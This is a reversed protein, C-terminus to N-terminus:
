FQAYSDAPFGIKELNPLCAFNIMPPPGCMGMYTDDGPAPMAKKIMEEDIFGTSYDWKEGNETRDVTYWLHFNEHDKALQDLEERLLIDSPTVNAFLLSVETKDTKDKLIAKIVQYAPTLGTGGCIFGLKTKTMEKGHVVINGNGKYEFHGLPGKVGITDGLKLSDLHQSLIGGEPFKPHENAFYVKVVLDFYGVEDNSSTPTYARMTLKGNVMGSVLMHYGVPLGLVHDKSQLAFRFRRTNRNIVDKQVLAFDIRKKPNLAVLETAEVVEKKETAEDVNDEGEDLEGIYYDALMEKAKTSHIADFEDTADAGSNMTISASGGPHDKLFPTCDYVKDHVVIWASDDNDHKRIESWKFYKKSSDKVKTESKKEEKKEVVAPPADVPDMWGGKTPGAVTPHEFRLSFGNETTEPHIKVRFHPNNGMGMLNWTLTAPQANNAEDWARCCLEGYGMGCELFKSTNVKLTWFCWCYYKGFQPTHSYEEEPYTVDCLEWIKGGDFSVEVRTIKRGGGSYAYGRMTYDSPKTLELIEDHDPSGIASNINLQNFLYEPKYWWGEKKALEADVHPPMIRNDFFHYFNDSPEDQVTIYELWKVMRGGIWGPIIVRVPFGHDTTLRMGNQEYAIIVEGFPDMATALDISTGYTGNPLGEDEVGVFCVHRAKNMRIGAKLLLDRLRVGTWLHTAVACPGWSFGITQKTMNQEKRRNGACVLTVPLTVSPLSALEDMSIELEQDVLGNIKLKHTEWSIDKTAKGHNRIYHVSPPTFFGQDLLLKIPPEANFPHKGTLRIQAPHRSVWLDPTKADKDDIETTVHQCGLGGTLEAGKLAKMVNAKSEEASSPVTYLDGLMISAGKTVTLPLQMHPEAVNGM